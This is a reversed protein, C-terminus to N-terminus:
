YCIEDFTKSDMDQIIHVLLDVCAEVDRQHIVSQNTHMYRIPISLTMNVIGEFTKHINGSDTGGGNFVAYQFPIEYKKCVSEVYRILGRHAVTNSDIMSIVVGGGLSTCNKNAPTDGALTTDIAFAFDPHMVHTATRAGRLGPEEQITAAFSLPIHKKGKLRELVYLGIACSVRNDFAKGALYDPNNMQRFKTNPVVMDGIEIGLAEVEEKSGVGLDLYIDNMSVTKGRKEASMGHTAASGIFGEIEKHDKTVVVFDHGLLMHTWWSGVPILKLFGQSDIENVFFGVEDCHTAIMVKPGDNSECKVGMVSGLGDHKISDVLGNMQKEIYNCVSEECSSIGKAESLEKLIDLNIMPFVMGLNKM